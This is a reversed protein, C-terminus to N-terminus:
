PEGFEGLSLREELAAIIRLAPLQADATLRKVGVRRRLQLVEEGAPLVYLGCELVHGLGRLVPDLELLLMRTRQAPRRLSAGARICRARGKHRPQRLPTMAATAARGGRLRFGITTSSWRAPHTKTRGAISTNRTKM